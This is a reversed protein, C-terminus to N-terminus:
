LKVKKILFNQLKRLKVHIDLQLAEVIKKVEAYPVNSLM